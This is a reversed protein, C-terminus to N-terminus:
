FAIVKASKIPFHIFSQLTFEENTHFSVGLTKTNRLYKLVHFAAQLHGPAPKTQHQALLSTIVAIDPRSGQALWQLSGVISRYKQQLAKFNHPSLEIQQASDVPLGSRYPTKIHTPSDLDIGFNNIISETCTTLSLHAITSNESQQWSIKHGIFHTAKSLFDVTTQESLRQEFLRSFYLFDDVYLGLYLPPLDPCLRGTFLCSSHKCQTLGVAIGM